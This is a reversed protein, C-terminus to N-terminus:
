SVFHLSSPLRFCLSLNSPTLFQATLVVLIFRAPSSHSLAISRLLHGDLRVTRLLLLTFLAGFDSYAYIRPFSLSLSLILRESSGGTLPFLILFFTLQRLLFSPCPSLM